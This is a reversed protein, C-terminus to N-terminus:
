PNSSSKWCYQSLVINWPLEIMLSRDIAKAFSKPSTKNLRFGCGKSASLAQM